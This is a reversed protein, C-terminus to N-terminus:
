RTVANGVHKILRHRIPNADDAYWIGEVPVTAKEDNIPMIEIGRAAVAASEFTIGIGFGMTVLQMLAGRSVSYQICPLSREGLRSLIARYGSIDGGADRLIIPFRAIDSLRLAALEALEHDEPLLAVLQETWLVEQVFAANALDPMFATFILDLSRDCLMAHLEGPMAEVLNLEVDPCEARFAILGDRLPGSAIGPYFGISLRGCKSLSAANTRLLSQDATHLMAQAFPLLAEGVPTLALPAGRRRVFLYGPYIEELRAIAQSMAPQSIGLLKAAGIFSRTEVVKLFFQIQQLTPLVQARGAPASGPRGRV